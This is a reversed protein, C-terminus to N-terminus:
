LSRKSGRAELLSVRGEVRREGGSFKKRSGCVEVRRSGSAWVFDGIGGHLLM